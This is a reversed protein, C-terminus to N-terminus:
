AAGKIKKLMDAITGTKAITAQRQELPVEAVRPHCSLCADFEERTEHLLDKKQCRWKKPVDDQKKSAWVPKKPEKPPVFKDDIFKGVIGLFHRGFLNKPSYLHARGQSREHAWWNGVECCLAIAQEETRGKDALEKLRPAVWSQVYKEDAPYTDGCKANVHEIVRKAGCKHWVTMASSTTLKDFDGSPEDPPDSGEGGSKEFAGEGLAVTCNSEPQSNDVPQPTPPIKEIEIEIEPREKANPQTRNQETHTQAKKKERWAKAREASGDERTPQRKSWGTLRDDDMVRGQMAKLISLIDEELMDLASALDEANAQTRGRENENASADTMLFVFVAIVATLPQKSLRAITRFKPDTPMDHWLRVWGGSM